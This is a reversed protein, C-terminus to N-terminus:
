TVRLIGVSLRRNAIRVCDGIDGSDNDYDSAM